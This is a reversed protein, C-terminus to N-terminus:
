KTPEPPSFQVSLEVPTDGEAQVEQWVKAPVLPLDNLMAQTVHMKGTTLTASGSKRDAAANGSVSWDGWRPDAVGGTLTLRGEQSTLDANVGHLVMEPRGEQRITIQSQKVQVTPLEIHAGGTKPLATLLKGEKNFRLLLKAGSVSLHHPMVEGRILDWASVDAETDDVTLWPHESQDSGAEYLRLGHLATSAAGVDVEDLRVRGGYVAGLRAAVKEAAGHSHLYSRAAFFLVGILVLVIVLVLVLRRVIRM